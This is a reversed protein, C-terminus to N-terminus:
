WRDIWTGPMAPTTDHIHSVVKQFKGSIHFAELRVLGQQILLCSEPHQKRFLSGGYYKKEAVAGM